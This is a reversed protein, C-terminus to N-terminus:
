TTITTATAGTKRRRISVHDVKLEVPKMRHFINQRKKVIVITKQLTTHDYKASSVVLRINLWVFNSLSTEIQM